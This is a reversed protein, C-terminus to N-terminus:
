PRPSFARRDGRDPREARSVVASGPAGDRRARRAPSPCRAAPASRHCSDDDGPGGAALAREEVRQPRLPV